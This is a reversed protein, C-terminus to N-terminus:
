IAVNTVKNFKLLFLETKSQLNLWKIVEIKAQDCFQKKLLLVFISKQTALIRVKLKSLTIKPYSKM